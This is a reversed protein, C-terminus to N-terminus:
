LATLKFIYGESAYTEIFRHKLKARLRSILTRRRSSNSPKDPWIEYEITMFSILMNKHNLFLELLAREKKSLHVMEGCCILQSTNSEFSFQTDLVMNGILTDETVNLQSLGIKIAAFLEKRNFPKVLYAIPNVTIARDITEEDIYATLFIIPVEKKEKIRMAADIGNSNMLYIDMLILDVEHQMAKEYAENATSSIAVVNYGLTSLYSEIEMSVIREDEVILINASM